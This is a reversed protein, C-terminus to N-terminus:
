SLVPATKNSSVARKLRYSARNIYKRCYKELHHLYNASPLISKLRNQYDNRLKGIATKGVNKDLEYFPQFMALISDQEHKVVADDKYIPFDFTAILQGYKWPKNIDFQYNFSTNRPLFYVIVTM